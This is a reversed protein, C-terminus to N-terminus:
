EVGVYYHGDYAAMGNVYAENRVVDTQLSEPLERDSVDTMKSDYVISYCYDCFSRVMYEKQNRDKLVATENCRSCKGYTKLVCQESVMLPIIGATVLETEVGTNNILKQMDRFTLEYPLTVRVLKLGSMDCLDKLQVIAKSNYVYINADTIVKIDALEGNSRMEAMLESLVGLEELSRVLFEDIGYSIIKKVLRKLKDNNRGRMIHPLAAAITKDSNKIECIFQKIYEENNKKNNVAKNEDKNFLHYEIYFIDADVSLIQNFEEYSKILFSKRTKDCINIKDNDDTIKHEDAKNKSSKREYGSIIKRSLEEVGERRLNKIWGVPVFANGLVTADASGAYFQTNGLERLITRCKNEDVPQNKAEEACPGTVTVFEDGAQLTLCMPQGAEIYLQMDTRVKSDETEQCYRDSVLGAVEGNKTRYVTKGAYLKHKKPLNVIWEGGKKINVGSSFSNDSDIEFVDGANIDLLAKFTIRGSVNSIVELAKTGMHNPRVVSMMDTGKTNNYYGTTFAGRNYCDMLETIDKQSVKYGSKGKELYMDVYKRYMSTVFAAYTVNKMRGEIKLSNVGAEIVDPLINLACMDKPSLAYKGNNNILENKGYVDYPLRCPQACRGRNGSRNGNMSSFLCQGSYCYCLAGHVFSEIEIDCSRRIDRIEQLDLERATVIRAAGMKQLMAASHRGTITMQTSAHVPLDGFNERITRFVGLDQVIVADLGAEYYPALYETLRGNLEDEKLLTNVTMYISRGRLHAYELAELLEDKNFNGAYARAGFASGGLYVADAGANIVAKLIELNGAPALVETKTNYGM